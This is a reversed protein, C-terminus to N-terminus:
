RSWLYMWSTLSDGTMKRQFYRSSSTSIQFILSNIFRDVLALHTDIMKPLTRELIKGLDTIRVNLDLPKLSIETKRSFTLLRQVLDAGRKASYYIKKLDPKYREPFENEDLMIESYGLAVQLINNFDHAVGGALTGVAEMKQAQALQAYLSRRETVDEILEVVLEVERQEDKVPCSIIRFHRIQDRAPTHRESEHVQGDQFTLVCPCYSCPASSPPDNYAAYCIQGEGSRVNPFYAAFFPNIAVIEMNRNIVSIGIHLNDVVARYREESERMKEEAQKRDTIDLIVGILGVVAGSSDAFTAKHFMVDHTTGDSSKLSSEYIQPIPNKFLAEDQARYIDALEVPALEFVSKGIISEKPLGVFEAFAENCGLYVHSTDKFFVPAPISELLSEMLSVQKQLEEEARKRETTVETYTVIGGIEGSSRYWPRCEWRNYTVSGDPREFCDDDESEVAGLLCRQHVDKWRQPMEPFVEYHHKGIVDEEKVNYDLLYRNSVAIYHLDRDYVAIANPDNRVIYQM